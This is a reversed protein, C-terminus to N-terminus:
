KEDGNLRAVRQRRDAIIRAIDSEAADRRTVVSTVPQDPRDRPHNIMVIIEATAPDAGGAAMHAAIAQEESEGEYRLVSVVGRGGDREELISIRRSM